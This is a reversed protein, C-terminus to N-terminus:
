IWKILLMKSSELQRACKLMNLFTEQRREKIMEKESIWIQQPHQTQSPSSFSLTMLNAESTMCGYKNYKIFWKPTNEYIDKKTATERLTHTQKSVLFNFSQKM